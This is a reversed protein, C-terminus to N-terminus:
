NSSRVNKLQEMLQKFSIGSPKNGDPLPTIAVRCNFNLPPRKGYKM